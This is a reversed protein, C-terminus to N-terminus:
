DHEGGGCVDHQGGYQPNDLIGHPRRPPFKLKEFLPRRLHTGALEIYPRSTINFQTPTPTNAVRTRHVRESPGDLAKM